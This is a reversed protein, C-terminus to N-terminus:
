RTQFTERNIKDIILRLRNHSILKHGFVILSSRM